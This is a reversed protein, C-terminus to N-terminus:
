ESAEIELAKANKRRITSYRYEGWVRQVGGSRKPPNSGTTGKHGLENVFKGQYWIGRAFPIM